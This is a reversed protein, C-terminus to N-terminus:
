DNERYELPVDDERVQRTRVESLSGDAAEEMSAVLEAELFQGEEVLEEVSESAVDEVDPLGQIDGSQGASGPGLGRKRKQVRSVPSIGGGFESHNSM